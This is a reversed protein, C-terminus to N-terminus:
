IPVVTKGNLHGHERIIQTMETKADKIRMSLYESSYKETFDFYHMIADVQDEDFGASELKEIAKKQDKRYATGTM